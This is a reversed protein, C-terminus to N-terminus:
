TLKRSLQCILARALKIMEGAEKEGIEAHSEYRAKNRLRIGDNLRRGLELDVEGSKVYLEGFKNVIGRHSTPLEDMKFLLLGKTALEASNYAVDSSVRYEDDKFLREGIELYHVALASYGSAEETKMEHENMKYIEKGIKSNRYLFYSDPYRLRELCYVLPEVGEGIELLIDFSIEATTEEVRKLDSTAFILLDVDSEKGADKRLLSGFLIIRAIKDGVPSQLLREKFRDVALHKRELMKDM